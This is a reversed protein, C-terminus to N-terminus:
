VFSKQPSKRSYLTLEVNVHESYLALMAAGITEETLSENYSV